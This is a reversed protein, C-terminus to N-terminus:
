PVADGGAPCAFPLFSGAMGEAVAMLALRDALAIEAAGEPCVRGETCGSALFAAHDALFRAGIGALGDGAALHDWAATYLRCKARTWDDAMAAGPLGLGLLVAALVGARTIRPLPVRGAGGAGREREPRECRAVTWRVTARWPRATRPGASM